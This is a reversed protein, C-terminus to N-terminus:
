GDDIDGVNGTAGVESVARSTLDREQSGPSPGVVTWFQGESRDRGQVGVISLSVTSLDGDLRSIENLKEELWGILFVILPFVRSAKSHDSSGSTTKQKASLRRESEKDERSGVLSSLVATLDEYVAAKDEWRDDTRDASFWSITTSVSFSVLALLGSTFGLM